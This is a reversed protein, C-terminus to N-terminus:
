PQLLRTLKRTIKTWLSRRRNVKVPRSYREHIRLLAMDRRIEAATRNDQYETYASPQRSHTTM